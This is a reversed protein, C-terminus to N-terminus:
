SLSEQEVTAMMSEGTDVSNIVTWDMRSLLNTRWTIELDKIRMKQM